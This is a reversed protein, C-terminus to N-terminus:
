LLIAQLARYRRIRGIRTASHLLDVGTPRLQLDQGITSNGSSCFLISDSGETRFVSKHPANPQPMHGDQKDSPERRAVNTPRKAASRSRFLTIPVSHDSLREEDNGLSLIAMAAIGTPEWRRASCSNKKSFRARPAPLAFMTEISTMDGNGGLYALEREESRQSEITRSPGEFTISSLSTPRANHLHRPNTTSLFRFCM